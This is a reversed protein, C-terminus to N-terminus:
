FRVRLMAESRSVWSCLSLLFIEWNNTVRNWCLCVLERICPTIKMQSFFATPISHYKSNGVNKPENQKQQTHPSRARCPPSLCKFHACLNAAHVAIAFDFNLDFDFRATWREVRSGRLWLGQSKRAISNHKKKNLSNPFAYFPITIIM